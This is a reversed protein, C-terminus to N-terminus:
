ELLLLDLSNKELSDEIDTIANINKIEIESPIHKLSDPRDILISKWLSSSAKGRLKNIFNKPRVFIARKTFAKSTFIQSEYDDLDLVEDQITFNLLM